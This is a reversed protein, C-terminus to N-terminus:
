ETETRNQLAKAGLKGWAQFAFWLLLGIGAIPGAVVFVLGLLPAALFMATTKLVSSKAPAAPQLKAAESKKQQAQIATWALMGLGVVPFALIYALGVFPAALFLAVNKAFRAVGQIRSQAPIAAPQAVAAAEVAVTVHAMADKESMAKQASGEIMEPSLPKRLFGSVGAAEARAENDPSGYGTVIVVPLWPRRQKVQEAMELGSMGPMKIDTFVVDYDEAELKNLAEQGSSATIVAYGKGSLVRDFSKAVVPDDDVVLVRHLASMVNEKHKL